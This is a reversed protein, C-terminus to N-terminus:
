PLAYGLARLQNLQMESMELTPTPVGWPAPASEEIHSEALARMRSAVEPQEWALDRLEAPDEARDFLQGRYQKSARDWALV